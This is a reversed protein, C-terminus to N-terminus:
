TRRSVGTEALKGRKPAVAPDDAVDAKKRGPRLGSTSPLKAM